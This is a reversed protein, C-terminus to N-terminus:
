ARLSIEGSSVAVVAAAASCYEDTVAAFTNAVDAKGLRAARRREVSPDKDTALKEKASWGPPHDWQL